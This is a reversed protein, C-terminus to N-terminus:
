AANSARVRARRRAADANHCARCRRWRGRRIGLNRGSLPHGNACQVKAANRASFSTGRLINERETVAELHAPNVCLTNRCLHDIVFGAPVSGVFTEYSFRHAAVGRGCWFWGYAASRWPRTSGRWLWCASTREVKRWFRQVATRLPMRTELFLPAARPFMRM